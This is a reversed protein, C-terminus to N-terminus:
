RVSRNREVDRLVQELTRYDGPFPTHVPLFPIRLWIQRWDQYPYFAFHTIDLLRKDPPPSQITLVYGFPPFSTESLLRTTHTQLNGAATIGLSRFLRGPNLYMFIRLDPDLGYSYPNLLFRRLSPYSRYALGDTHSAFMCLVQKIVRLPFIYFPILIQPSDLKLHLIRLAQSAWDAFASGYWHGTTSNCKGCLTYAGKGRQQVKKRAREYEFDVRELDEITAQVVPKDNFAARPPVHEFSLQGHDGCIRCYGYHKTRGM